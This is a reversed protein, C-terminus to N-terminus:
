ELYEVKLKEYSLINHPDSRKIAKHFYSNYNRNFEVDVLYIDVNYCGIPPNRIVGLVYLINGNEETYIFFGVKNTRIDQRNM